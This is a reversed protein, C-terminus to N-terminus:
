YISYPLTGSRDFPASQLDTTKSKSPEFGDEGVLKVSVTKVTDTLNIIPHKLRVMRNTSAAAFILNKVAIRVIVSNYCAIPKNNISGFLFNVKFDPKASM